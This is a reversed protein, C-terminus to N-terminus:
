EDSHRLCIASFTLVHFRLRLFNFRKFHNNSHGEQNKSFYVNGCFEAFHCYFNSIKSTIKFFKRMLRCFAKLILFMDM